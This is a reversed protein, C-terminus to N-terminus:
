KGAKDEFLKSLVDDIQPLDETLGSWDELAPGFRSEIEGLSQRMRPVIRQSYRGAVVAALIVHLGHMLIIKQDGFKLEELDGARFNFSEKVFSQVAVLMASLVDSDVEPRLSRSHHRILEGSRHLLFMEDIRAKVKVGLGYFKRAVFLWMALLVLLLALVILWIWNAQVAPPEVPPPAVGDTVEATVAALQVDIVDGNADQYSLNVENRLPSGVTAQDDVSVNVTLFHPGPAVDVFRWTIRGGSSSFITHSSRRFTTQDPITDNVWVNAATGSGTNNFYITYVIM